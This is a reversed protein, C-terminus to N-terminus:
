DKIIIDTIESQARNVVLDVAQSPTMEGTEVKTLGEVLIEVLKGWEPHPIFEPWTKDTLKSLESLFKGEKVMKPVGRTGAHIPLRAGEVSHDAEFKPITALACIVFALEPYKSQKTIVYFHPGVFAGPQAGPKTAPYLSFGINEWAYEPTLKGMTEHYEVRQWEGWHWSGGMWFLVRGNVFDTHIKRWDTAIMTPPTVKYEQTMKYFLTFYDLLKSKSIVLKGTEPDYFRGGLSYYPIWLSGGAGKRHYIGWEVLGRDMAERAIRMIDEFTIEGNKIKAAFANIEEESWGMKRLVDKRFYFVHMAADQPVGWIHGKYKLNWMSEPVDAFLASYKEFYQDLPYIWGMDALETLGYGYDIVIDPAENAQWAATLRTKAADGPIHEFTAEIEIRVKLGIAELVTNLLEVARELNKARYGEAPAGGCWAKLKIIGEEPFTGLLNKVAIYAKELDSYKINLDDYKAKLEDYKKKLADLEKQLEEAGAPIPAKPALFYGLPAGIIIGIILGVLLYTILAKEPM